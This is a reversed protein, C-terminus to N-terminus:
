LGAFKRFRKKLFSICPDYSKNFDRRLNGRRVEHTEAGVKYAGVGYIETYGRAKTRAPLGWSNILDYMSQEQRAPVIYGDTHIYPVNLKTAAEYAIGNLVDMVLRFLVLNIFRNPKKFSTLAGDHWMKVMGPLGVSVLSNRALKMHPFPFDLVSSRVNLWRDPNYDVDWGVVKLISWYASQIDVYVGSDIACPIARLPATGRRDVVEVKQRATIRKRRDAYKIALYDRAVDAHTVPHEWVDALGREIIIRHKKSPISWAFSGMMVPDKFDALNPWQKVVDASWGEKREDARKSMRELMAYQNEDLHEIEMM